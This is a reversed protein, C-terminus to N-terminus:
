KWVRTKAHAESCGTGCGTYDGGLIKGGDEFSIEVKLPEQSLTRRVIRKGRGEGILEGLM